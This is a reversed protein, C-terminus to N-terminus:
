GAPELLVVPIHRDTRQTYEDFDAYKEVLRPWLRDHEEPTAERARVRRRERGVRIEASPEAQLNLWWAPPRDSALNSAVVVIDAGDELYLLGTSRPQGSKRGTTTLLLCRGLGPVRHGMGTRSYVFRHVAWFAAAVRRPPIM